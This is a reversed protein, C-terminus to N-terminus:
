AVDLERMSLFKVNHKKGVVLAREIIEIALYKEGIRFEKGEMRHMHVFLMSKTAALKAIIKFNEDKKVILIRALNTSKIQKLNKKIEDKSYFRFGITRLTNFHKSLCKKTELDKRGYPYAYNKIDDFGKRRLIEIGPLIENSIFRQCGMTTIFKRADLHNTGHFGITHGAKKFDGVMEWEEETILQIHTLYFTIKAEYKEFLSLANFWEKIHRDDFSLFIAPAKIM